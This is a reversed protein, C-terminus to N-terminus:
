IILAYYISLNNWNKNQKCFQDLDTNKKKSLM